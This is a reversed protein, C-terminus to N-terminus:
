GRVSRLSENWSVFACAYTDAFIEIAGQLQPEHNESLILILLSIMAKQALYGEM